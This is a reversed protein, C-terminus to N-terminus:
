TGQGLIVEHVSSMCIIKGRARSAATAPHVLFRRVTERACLFQGTLNVDLVRQWQELTMEQFPADQQIGSNAVLIDIRGFARDLAAFM